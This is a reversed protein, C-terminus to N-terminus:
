PQELDSRMIWGHQGDHTEVGYWYPTSILILVETGPPLSQLIAATHFPASKLPAGPSKVLREVQKRLEKVRDELTQASSTQSSSTLESLAQGSQMQTSSADATAPNAAPISEPTPSSVAPDPVALVPAPAELSSDAAARSSSSTEQPEAPTQGNLIAQKRAERERAAELDQKEMLAISNLHEQIDRYENIEVSGDSPHVTHRFDEVFVADIRLMTNKEDVPKVVYRVALLGSDGSDKFHRPDLANERVKYFVKGGETWTAFARCTTAAQAGSVYEDKNYEKTGRIIGNQTIEQVVQELAHAPTPLSIVFGQGYALKDGKDRAALPKTDTLGIALVLLSLFLFWRLAHMSGGSNKGPRQM